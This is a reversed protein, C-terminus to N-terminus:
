PDARGVTTSSPRNEVPQVGAAIMRELRLPPCRRRLAALEGQGPIVLDPALDALPYLVFAREHLRPHPLVLAPDDQTLEGYLLLDLDLTRPGWRRGRVRRHVREIAQLRALLSYPALSTELCAVANVYDPQDAPGLPASRYLPSRGLLRSQPLEALEAFARRVQAVPDDLNSGIGVYARVEPM